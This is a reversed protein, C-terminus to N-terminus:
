IGAIDKGDLAALGIRLAQATTTPTHEGAAKIADSLSLYFMGRISMDRRLEEADHIPLTRDIFSISSLPFRTLQESDSRLIVTPHLEGELIVRLSTDTSYGNEEIAEGIKEAVEEMSTVGTVDLTISEYRHRSFTVFQERVTCDEGEKEIDLRYFGGRGLEDFGHGELFSAHSYLSRGVCCPATAPGHGLAAYDAGFAAIAEPTTNVFLTHSSLDCSGVILNIRDQRLVSTGALPNIARRQSLVAWGYVCAGLEPLDFHDLTDKEFILVNDPFRGSAYLSDSTYPDDAGPAIVFRCPKAEELKRLLHATDSSILYRGYLNGAILVLDIEERKIYDFLDDFVKPFREYCERCLDLPLGVYANGLGINAIHLVRLAKAM